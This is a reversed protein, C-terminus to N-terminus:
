ARIWTEPEASEVQKRTKKPMASPLIPWFWTDSLGQLQKM